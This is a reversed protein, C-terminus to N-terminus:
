GMTNVKEIAIKYIVRVEDASRRPYKDLGLYKKALRDISADAGQQTIEVVRGRIEMHRYPNDPDSVEFSVRPDRRLNKDKQRGLASNVVILEGDMEWWVPTVQPSGDPMLTGLHAFSKKEILDKFKEPFAAPMAIRWHAIGHAPALRLHNGGAFMVQLIVRRPM